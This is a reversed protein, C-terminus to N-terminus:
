YKKVCYLVNGKLDCMKVNFLIRDGQLCKTIVETQVSKLETM